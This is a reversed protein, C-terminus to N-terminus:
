EAAKVAERASLMRRKIEAPDQIAAIMRQRDGPELETTAAIAECETAADKVAQAMAAEIRQGLGSTRGNGGANGVAEVIVSAPVVGVDAKTITTKDAM